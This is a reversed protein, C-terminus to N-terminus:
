NSEDLDKENFFGTKNYREITDYRIMWRTNKAKIAYDIRGEQVISLLTSYRIDMLKAAEPLTYYNDTLRKTM